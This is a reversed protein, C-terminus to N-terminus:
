FATRGSGFFSSFQRGSTGWCCIPELPPKPLRWLGGPGWLQPGGRMNQLWKPELVPGLFLIHKPDGKQLRAPAESPERLGRPGCAAGFPKGFLALIPGFHPGLLFGTLCAFSHERGPPLEDSGERSPELISSKKSDRKRVRKLGRKPVSQHVEQGRPTGMPGWMTGFPDGLPGWFPELVPDFNLGRKQHM